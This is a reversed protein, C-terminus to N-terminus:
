GKMKAGCNPCYDSAKYDFGHLGICPEGCVSCIPRVLPNGQLWEGDKQKPVISPADELDGGKVEITPLSEIAILVRDIYEDKCDTHELVRVIEDNVKSLEIYKSM